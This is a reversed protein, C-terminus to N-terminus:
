NLRQALTSSLEPNACYDAPVATIPSSFAGGGGGEM